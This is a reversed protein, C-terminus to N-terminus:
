FLFGIKPNNANVTITNNDDAGTNNLLAGGIANQTNSNAATHNAGSHKVNNNSHHRRIDNNSDRGDDTAVARATECWFFRFVGMSTTDFDMWFFQAMPPPARGSFFRLVGSAPYRFGDRPRM